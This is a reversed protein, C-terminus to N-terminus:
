KAAMGIAPAKGLIWFIIGVGVAVAGIILVYKLTKWVEMTADAATNLGRTIVDVNPGAPKPASTSLFGQAVASNYIDLLRKRYENLSHWTSIGGFFIFNDWFKDPMSTHVSEFQNWDDIFPGLTGAYFDQAKKDGPYRPDKTDPFANLFLQNRLSEVDGRTMRIADKLNALVGTGALGSGGFFRDEPKDKEDDGIILKNDAGVIISVGRVNSFVPVHNIMTKSLRHNILGTMAEM